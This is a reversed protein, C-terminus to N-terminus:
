IKLFKVKNATEHPMYYGYQYFVCWLDGCSWEVVSWLNPCESLGSDFKARLTRVNGRYFCVHVQLFQLYYQLYYEHWSRSSACCRYFSAPETRVNWYKYGMWVEYKWVIKMRETNEILHEVLENVSRLILMRVGPTDLYFQSRSSSSGSSRRKFKSFDFFKATSSDSPEASTPPTNLLPPYDTYLPIFSPCSSASTFSHFFQLSFLATPQFLHLWHTIIPSLTSLSSTLTYYSPQPDFSFFHTGQRVTPSFLDPSFSISSDTLRQLETREPHWWDYKTM